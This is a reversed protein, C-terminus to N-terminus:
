LGTEFWLLSDQELVHLLRNNTSHRACCSRDHFLLLMNLFLLVVIHKLLSSTVCSSTSKDEQGTIAMFTIYTEPQVVVDHRSGKLGLIQFVGINVVSVLSFHM